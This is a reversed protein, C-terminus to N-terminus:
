NEVGHVNIKNEFQITHTSSHGQGDGTKPKYGRCLFFAESSDSRSSKPKVVRVSEFNPVLHDRRFKESEPHIFYKIRLISTLSRNLGDPEKLNDKAFEFAAMCLELSRPIDSARNGTINPAMDTLIVDVKQESPGMLKKISQVTSPALFDGQLVHAGPIPAIKAIDVAILLGRGVDEENWGLKRAAFQSWGGPAAGLDVVVKGATLFKHAADIEQLKFASRSRFQFSNRNKVYHDGHQRALWQNSSSKSSYCRLHLPRFLM